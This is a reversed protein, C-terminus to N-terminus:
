YPSAVTSHVFAGNDSTIHVSEYDAYISEGPNANKQNSVPTISKDNIRMLLMATEAPPTPPVINGSLTKNLAQQEDSHCM